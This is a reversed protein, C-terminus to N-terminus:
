LLHHRLDPGLRLRGPRVPQGAPGLGRPAQPREALLRGEPFGRRHPALRRFRVPFLGVQPGSGAQLFRGCPLEGHPLVQQRLQLRRPGPLVHDGVPVLRHVPRPPRGQQRRRPGLDQRLVRPQLQQPLREAAALRLHHRLHRGDRGPQAQRRLHGQLFPHQRLDHPPRRQAYGDGRRAPHPRLRDPGPGPLVLQPGLPPGHVGHEQLEAEQHLQDARLRHPHRPRHHRLQKRQPGHERGAHHLRGPRLLRRLVAEPEGSGVGRRLDPHQHRLPRRRRPERGYRLHHRQEQLQLLGRERGRHAM